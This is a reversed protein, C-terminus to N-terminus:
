NKKVLRKILMEQVFFKKYWSKQFRKKQVFNIQSSIKQVLILMFGVGVGRLSLILLKEALLWVKCVKTESIM